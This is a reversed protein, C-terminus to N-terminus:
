NLIFEKFYDCIFGWGLLWDRSVSQFFLHFLGGKRGSKGRRRLSNLLLVGESASSSTSENQGGGVELVGKDGYEAEASNTLSELSFEVNPAYDHFKVLIGAQDLHLIHNDLQKQEQEKLQHHQLDHPLHSRDLSFIRSRNYFASNNGVGRPVDESNPYELFWSYTIMTTSNGKNEEGEQGRRGHGVGFVGVGYFVWFWCIAHFSLLSM